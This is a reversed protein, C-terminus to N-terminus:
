KRKKGTMQWCDIRRCNWRSDQKLSDLSLNSSSFYGSYCNCAFLMQTDDDGDDDFPLQLEQLSMRPIREDGEDDDPMHVDDEDCLM